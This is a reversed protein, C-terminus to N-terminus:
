TGITFFEHVISLFMFCMEPLNLPSGPTLPHTNVGVELSYQGLPLHRIWFNIRFHYAPHKHCYWAGIEVSHKVFHLFRTYCSWRYFFSGIAQAYIQSCRQRKYARLEVSFHVHFQRFIYQWLIFIDWTALRDIVFFVSLEHCTDSQM